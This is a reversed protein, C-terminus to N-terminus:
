GVRFVYIMDRNDLYLASIQQGLFQKKLHHSGWHEVPSLGGVEYSGANHHKARPKPLWSRPVSYRPVPPACDIVYAASQIWPDETKGPQPPFQGRAARERGTENTQGAFEVKM